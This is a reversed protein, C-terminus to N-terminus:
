WSSSYEIDYKELNKIKLVKEVIKKTDKLDEFYWKEYDTGGFFFGEKVPLLEHALKQQKEKNKENLIEKVIELLEKLKEIELHYAGCDDEGKQINKVFWAHIQNAKRWYGVEFILEKMEFGNMEEVIENGKSTFASIIKQLEDKEREEAWLYRKLNLFM